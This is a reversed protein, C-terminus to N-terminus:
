FADEGHRKGERTIDMSKLLKQSLRFNHMGYSQVLRLLNRTNQTGSDNKNIQKIQKDLTEKWADHLLGYDDNHCEICHNRVARFSIGDPEPKHCDTCSVAASMWDPMKIGMGQIAGKLYDKIEAHCHFCALSMEQNKSFSGIATEQDSKHHCLWCDKKQIMLGGHTKTHVADNNHCQHCELGQRPSHSEHRFIEEQYVTYYALYNVHCRDTCSGSPFPVDDPKVTFRDNGTAISSVAVISLYLMLRVYFKIM